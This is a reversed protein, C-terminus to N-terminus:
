PTRQGSGLICCCSLRSGQKGAQKSAQRDAQRDAQRGAQRRWPRGCAPHPVISSPQNLRLLPRPPPSHGAHGAQGHQCCAGRARSAARVAQRTKTVPGEGRLVLPVHAEDVEDLSAHEPDWARGGRGGACAMSAAVSTGACPLPARAHRTHRASTGACPLERVARASWGVSCAMTADARAHM